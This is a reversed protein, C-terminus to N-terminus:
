EDYYSPIEVPTIQDEGQSPQEIRPPPFVIPFTTKREPELEQPTEPKSYLEYRECDMLHDNFKRPEEPVNKSGIQSLPQEKWQYQLKEDVYDTCRPHVLIKNERHKRRVYDIGGKVDNNAPIIPLGAEIYEDSLAYIDGELEGSKSIFSRQQGKAFGAPDAFGTWKSLQAYKSLMEKINEAHEQATKGEQKYNDLHHIIGNSDIWSALAAVWGRVAFDLGFYYHGYQDYEHKFDQVQSNMDFEKYILGTFRIFQALYEQAFFDPTVREKEKNIFNIFSERESSGEPWALNDYSTFHWSSWDSDLRINKGAKPFIDQHDGLLAFDHFHNYGQPTGIYINKHNPSDALSPRIIDFASSKIKAAEDWVILDLGSGRLSDPNDAGKLRLVSNTRPCYLSLDFDNKRLLGVQVYAIFYKVVDPDIWYIERAQRYYPLIIWCLQNPKRLIRILAENIGFASKGFRRGAVVVRNRARDQHLKLQNAHPKYYEEFNLTTM